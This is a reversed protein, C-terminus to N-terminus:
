SRADERGLAVLDFETMEMGAAQRARTVSLFASWHDDDWDIVARCLPKGCHDPMRPGTRVRHKEECVPCTLWIYDAKTPM